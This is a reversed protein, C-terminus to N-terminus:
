ERGGTKIFHDIRRAAVRARGKPTKANLYADVFKQPWGNGEQGVPYDFLNFAQDDDLLLLVQAERWATDSRYPTQKAIKLAWGGICHDTGCKSDVYGFVDQAYREPYKLIKEKVKLLLATNM